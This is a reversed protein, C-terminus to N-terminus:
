KVHFPQQPAQVYKGWNSYPASGMKQSEEIRNAQKNVTYHAECISYVRIVTVRKTGACVSRRSELM